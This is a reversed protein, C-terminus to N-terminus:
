SSYTVTWGKNTVQKIESETFLYKYDVPLKITYSEGEGLTAVKNFLDLLSTKSLCICYSFDLNGKYGAGLTLTHLNKYYQFNISSSICNPLDLIKVANTKSGLIDVPINEISHMELKQLVLGLGGNSNSIAASISKLNNLKLVRCFVNNNFAGSETHEEYNPLDLTDCSYSQFGASSVSTVNPLM